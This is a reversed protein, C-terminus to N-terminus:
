NYFMMIIMLIMIVNEFITVKSMPLDFFSGMCACKIKENKLVSNLVGISSILLFILAFLNRELEIFNFLFLIGLSFEIFPYIYGWVYIKKSIIDYKNLM